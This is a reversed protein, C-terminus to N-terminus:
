RYSSEGPPSQKNFRDSPRVWWRTAKIVPGPISAVFMISASVRIIGALFCQLFPNEASSFFRIELTSEQTRHDRHADIWTGVQIRNNAM